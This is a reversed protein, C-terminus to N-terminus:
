KQPPPEIPPLPPIQQQKSMQDMQQQLSKLRDSMDGNGGFLAGMCAGATLCGVFGLIALGIVIYALVGYFGKVIRLAGYGKLPDEKPRVRGAIDFLLKIIESLALFGIGAVLGWFLIAIGVFMGMGVGFNM